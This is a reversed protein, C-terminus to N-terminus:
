GKEPATTPVETPPTSQQTASGGVSLLGGSKLADMKHIAQLVELLGEMPHKELIATIVTESMKREMGPDIDLMRSGKFLERLRQDVHNVLVQNAALWWPMLPWAVAWITGRNGRRKKVVLSPM